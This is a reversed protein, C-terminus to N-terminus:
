DREAAPQQEEDPLCDKHYHKHYFGDEDDVCHIFNRNDEYEHYHIFYDDCGDCKYIDEGCEDCEFQERVRTKAM